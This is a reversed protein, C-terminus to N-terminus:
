RAARGTILICVIVVCPHASQNSFGTLSNDTKKM